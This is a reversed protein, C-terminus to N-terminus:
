EDPVEKLMILLNNLTTDTPLDKKAKLSSEMQNCYTQAEEILADLPAYNKTTACRRMDELVDCVWRDQIVKYHKGM